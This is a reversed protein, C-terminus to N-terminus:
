AAERLLRLPDPIVLKARSKARPFIGATAAQLENVWYFANQDFQKILAVVNELQKRKIVTCVIQVPGTAGQGEMATVGYEALKLSEILAEANNRTTINIVVNGIALKREIFVGMFNGLTFGTAFAIYCGVNTLNQMIQGIAFLWIVVEFFGLCSALVKMGRSIFIVRITGLTVVCMEAVFVLVPLFAM